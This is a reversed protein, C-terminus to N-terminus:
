ATKALEKALADAAKKAKHQFKQGMIQGGWDRRVSVNDNYMLRLTSVMNELAQKHEKRIDTLAIAAATKQYVLHGLRSKGKVICYPIDMQRCLSPLWVVLDIPDVDHAIIVLKAKKTEVLTTVHNLGYKMVIPKTSDSFDEQAEAAAKKKLRNRKEEPSEPKYLRLLRFLEKAQTGEVAKSFQNIAPPVKLRKKLIARQRQLRVYRPWKVYRTLDRKPPLDRGTRFVRAEKKFLHSNVAKFSKPAGSEKKKKDGKGKAKGVAKAGTPAPTAKPAASASTAKQVKGKSSM